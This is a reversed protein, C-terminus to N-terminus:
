AITMEDYLYKTNDFIGADMMTKLTSNSAVSSKSQFFCITQGAQSSYFSSGFYGCIYVDPYFFMLLEVPITGPTLNIVGDAAFQEVRGDTYTSLDTHHPHAKYFIDYQAGYMEKLKNYFEMFTKGAGREGDPSTGLILLNPKASADFIRSISIEQGDVIQRTRFLYEFDSYAKENAKINSLMENLKVVSLHEKVYQKMVADNEYLGDVFNVFYEVNPRSTFPLSYVACGAVTPTERMAIHEDRSGALANELHKNLKDIRMDLEAKDKIQSQMLSYTGVGDTWIRANYRTSDIGNCEMFATILNVYNDTVNVTFTSNKDMEALELVFDMAKSIDAGFNYKSLDELTGFKHVNAPLKDWDYTQTRELYVFTPDTVESTATSLCMQSSFMAVPLTANMYALNYHSEKLKYVHKFSFPKGDAKVGSVKITYKGFNPATFTVKQTITTLVHSQIVDENKVLEMKLDKAVFPDIVFAANFELSNRDRECTFMQETMSEIIEKLAAIEAKIKGIDVNQDKIIKELEAIKARLATVDVGDIYDELEKLSTITSELDTKTEELQKQLAELQAKLEANEADNNDCAVIGFALATVIALVLVIIIIKKM